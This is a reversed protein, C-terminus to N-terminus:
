SYSFKTFQKMYNNERWTNINYKYLFHTTNTNALIRMNSRSIIKHAIPENVGTSVM